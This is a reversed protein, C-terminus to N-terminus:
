LLSKRIRRKYLSEARKYVTWAGTLHYSIMLKVAYRLKPLFFYFYTISGTFILIKKKVLEYHEAFAAMYKKPLNIYARKKSATKVDM